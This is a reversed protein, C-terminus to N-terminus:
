SLCLKQLRLVHSFSLVWSILWEPSKWFVLFTTNLVLVQRQLLWGSIWRLRRHHLRSARVRKFGKHFLVFRVLSFFRRRVMHLASVVLTSKIHLFRSLSRGKGAWGILSHQQEESCSGDWLRGIAAADKNDVCVFCVSLCFFRSAPLSSAPFPALGKHVAMLGPHQRRLLQSPPPKRLFPLPSLLHCKIFFVIIENGGGGVTGVRGGAADVATALTRGSRLRHHGGDMM